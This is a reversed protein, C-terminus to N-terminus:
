RTPGIILLVLIDHDDHAAMDHGMQALHNAIERDTQEEIERRVEADSQFPDTNTYFM